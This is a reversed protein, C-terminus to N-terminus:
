VMTSFSSGFFCSSRKRLHTYSVSDSYAKDLAELVPIAGSSQCSAAMCVRVEHSFGAEENRYAQAMEALDDVNM